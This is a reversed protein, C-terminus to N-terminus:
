TELLNKSIRMDMGVSIFICFVFLITARIDFEHIKKNEGTSIWLKIWCSHPTSREFTERREDDTWMGRGLLIRRPQMKAYIGLLALAAARSSKGWLLKCDGGGGSPASMVLYIERKAVLTFTVTVKRAFVHLPEMQISLM